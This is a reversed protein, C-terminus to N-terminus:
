VNRNETVRAVNGQVSNIDTVRVFTPHDIFQSMLSIMQQAQENQIGMIVPGSIYRSAFGGDMFGPTSKFDMDSFVKPVFGGFGFGPVGMAKFTAAIKRAAIKEAVYRQWDTGDAKFKAIIEDPTSM